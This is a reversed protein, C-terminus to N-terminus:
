DVLTGGRLEIVRGLPASFERAPAAGGKVPGEGTIVSDQGLDLVSGANGVVVTNVAHGFILTDAIDSEYDTLNNGRFLNDLASEGGFFPILGLAYLSSGHFRNNAVSGRNVDGFFTIAGFETDANTIDNGTITPKDIVGFDIHGLLLIPDAIPNESRIVNNSITYRGGASGLLLMGNGLHWDPVTGPGPVITNRSIELDGGPVIALIGGGGVDEVTNGAVRVDAAVSDFVIAESLDAHMDDFRNGEILIEGVVAGEPDSNGLFKIGRGETAEFPFVLPSGVVRTVHNDIFKAGTSRIFVAASLLPGDFTIGEIRTHTHAVGFFPLAGGVIRTGQAGLIAVDETLGVVAGTEPPGFNFATPVGSEDVSELVVTGGADVAAQVANADDPHVGTPHVVTPDSPRADPKLGATPTAWTVTGAMAITTMVAAAALRHQAHHLVKGRKNM